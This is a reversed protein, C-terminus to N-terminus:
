PSACMLLRSLTHPSHRSVTQQSAGHLERIQDESRNQSTERIHRIKFSYYIRFLLNWHNFCFSFYIRLFKGIYFIILLFTALLVLLAPTMNSSRYDCIYLKPRMDAQWITAPQWSWWEWILTKLFIFEWDNKQRMTALINDFLKIFIETM